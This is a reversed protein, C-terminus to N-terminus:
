DIESALLVAGKQSSQEKGDRAVAQVKLFQIIAQAMTLRRSSCAWPLAARGPRNTKLTRHTTPNKYFEIFNSGKQDKELM